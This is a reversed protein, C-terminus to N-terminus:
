RRDGQRNPPPGDEPKPPNPPGFGRFPGRTFTFPEGTMTKWMARQEVTLMELIRETM